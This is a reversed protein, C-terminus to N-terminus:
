GNKEVFTQTHLRYRLGESQLSNFIMYRPRHGLSKYELGEPQAIGHIHVKKAKKFAFFIFCYNKCNELKIM